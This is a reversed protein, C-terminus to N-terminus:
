LGYCESNCNIDCNDDCNNNHNNIMIIIIIIIMILIRPALDRPGFRSCRYRDIYTTNIFM